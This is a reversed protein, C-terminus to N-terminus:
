QMILLPISTYGKVYVCGIGRSLCFLLYLFQAPLASKDGGVGDLTFVHHSHHIFEALSDLISYLCEPVIM